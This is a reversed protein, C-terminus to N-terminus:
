ISLKKSYGPSPSIQKLEEGGWKEGLIVLMMVLMMLEKEGLIM